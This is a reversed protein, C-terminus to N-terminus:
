LKGWVLKWALKIRRLLSEKNVFVIFERAVKFKGQKTLIIIKKALKGNM